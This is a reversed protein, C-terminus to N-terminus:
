QRASKGAVARTSGREVVMGVPEPSGEPLMGAYHAPAALYEIM